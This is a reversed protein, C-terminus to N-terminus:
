GRVTVKRERAPLEYDDATVSIRLTHQGPEVDGSRWQAHWAGGRREFPIPEPGGVVQLTAVIDPLQGPAEIRFRVPLTSGKKVTDRRPPEEVFRLVQYGIERETRNVQRDTATVLYAHIGFAADLNVTGDPAVPIPVGDKTVQITASGSDDTASVRM